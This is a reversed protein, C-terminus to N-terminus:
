LVIQEGTRPDWERLVGKRQLTTVSLQSFSNLACYLGFFRELVSALLYVGSGVYQEEDFQLDVHLGTSFVLGHESDMRAVKPRSRVGRLGAIQQAVTPNGSFDYLKLIERLAELGEEVVSLHNLSLHSALRWQLGRRMPPRITPSPPDLFRIRLIAGAEMEIDGFARTLPLREPLDRNTCTLSVTLSEVPPRAPSFNLDLLSLYVETGADGKRESPRRNALWFAQQQEAREGHRFSYLPRYEIPEEAYLANSTVRDVSYVETAGPFMVDPIVRYESLTHSLRIPEAFREFLNVAPTCGLQFTDKGVAQELAAVREKREFDRLLIVVEFREGLDQKPIQNLHVLDFFLFKQPFSFYEQLLRYGLFSRHSYPLMGENREFGVPRIAPQPLFMPAASARGGVNRIAVGALSCFLLEYINHAAQPDGSLHFRLQSIDLKAPTVEGLCRLEIRIAFPVDLGATGGPLNAARFFGASVVELPWLHVPCCTRFRCVAGNVPKAYLNAGEPVPYGATLNGQGPDIEIQAIAMSPVPRLFHPYLTDLLAETIEPFEDDIKRQIRGAILAFSEILREVHPDESAGGGLDLAGAREPYKEAFEAAMERIFLLEREYYPLLEGSM